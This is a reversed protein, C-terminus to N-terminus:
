GGDGHARATELEADAARAAAAEEIAFEAEKEEVAAGITGPEALTLGRTVPLPTKFADEVAAEADMTENFSTLDDLHTAIRRQMTAEGMDMAMTAEWAARLEASEAPDKANGMDDPSM